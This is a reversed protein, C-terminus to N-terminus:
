TATASIAYLVCGEVVCGCVLRTGLQWVVQVGATCYSSLINMNSYCQHRLACLGRGCVWLSADYGAAVSSSCWCYLIIIIYEHQQLVSPTSCVARSWVGM